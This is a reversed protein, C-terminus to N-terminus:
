ACPRGFVGRFDDLAANSEADVAALVGDLLVLEGACECGYVSRSNRGARRAVFKKCPCLVAADRSERGVVM